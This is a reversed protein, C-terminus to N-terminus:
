KDEETIQGELLVQSHQLNALMLSERRDTGAEQAFTSAVLGIVFAIAILLNSKM